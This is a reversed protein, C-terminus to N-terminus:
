FEFEKNRGTSLDESGLACHNAEHAEADRQSLGSSPVGDVTRGLIDEMRETLGLVIGGLLDKGNRNRILRNQPHIM